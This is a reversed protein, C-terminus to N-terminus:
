SSRAKLEYATAVEALDDPGVTTVLLEDTQEVTERTAVRLTTADIKSTTTTVTDRTWTTAYSFAPAGSPSVANAGQKEGEEEAEYFAVVLALAGRLSKTKARLRLIRVVERLGAGEVYAERAEEIAEASDFWLQCRKPTPNM